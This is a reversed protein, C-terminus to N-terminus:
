DELCPRICQCIVGRWASYLCTGLKEKGCEWNWGGVRRTKIKIVCCGLFFFDSGDSVGRAGLVDGLHLRGRDKQHFIRVTSRSKCFLHVRSSPVGTGEEWTEADTGKGTGMEEGLSAM